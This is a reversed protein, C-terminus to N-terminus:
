CPDFVSGDAPTVRYTDCARPGDLSLGVLFGKEALFDAWRV